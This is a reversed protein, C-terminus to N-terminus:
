LKVAGDWGEPIGLEIFQACRELYVDLAVDTPDQQKLAQFLTQAEAFREAQFAAVARAFEEKLALKRERPTEEMGDL